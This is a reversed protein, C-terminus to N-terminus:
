LLVDQMYLHEIGMGQLMHYCRIYQFPITKMLLLRLLINFCQRSGCLNIWLPRSAYLKIIRCVAVSLRSRM